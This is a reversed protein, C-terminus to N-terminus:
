DIILKDSPVPSAMINISATPVGTVAKLLENAVINQIFSYGNQASQNFAKIDPNSATPSWAPTNL